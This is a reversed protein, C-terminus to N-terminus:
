QDLIVPLADKSPAADAPKLYLPVPAPPSSHWREATLRAIASAPAYPAPPTAVELHAAVAKAGTGLAVLGPISWDQPIDAVSILQAAIPTDTAFGQVYVHDRPAAVTSLVPGSTGCALAELATVGVAPVGLGLALGRAASVSLRVGTFNGPGIGVGIASLDRWQAGGRQLIDELVPFLQEAQGKAMDVYFDALVETGRTLVAGCWPGSTDFGLILPDRGM